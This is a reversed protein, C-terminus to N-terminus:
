VKVGPPPIHINARELAARLLDGTEGKRKLARKVKRDYHIVSEGLQWLFEWKEELLVHIEPPALIPQRLSWLKNEFIYDDFIGWGTVERIVNKTYKRINKIEPHKRQLIREIKLLSKETHLIFMLKSQCRRCRSMGRRWKERNKYGRETSLKSEIAYVKLRIEKDIEWLDRVGKIEDDEDITSSIETTNNDRGSSEVRTDMSPLITAIDRDQLERALSFPVVLTDESDGIYNNGDECKWAQFQKRVFIKVYEIDDSTGDDGRSAGTGPVM